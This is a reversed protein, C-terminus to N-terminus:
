CVKMSVMAIDVYGHRVNLPSDTSLVSGLCPTPLSPRTPHHVRIPSKTAMIMAMAPNHAKTTPTVM